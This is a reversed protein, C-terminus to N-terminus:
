KGQVAGVFREILDALEQRQKTSLSLSIKIGARGKEDFKLTALTKGSIAFERNTPPPVTGGGRGSTPAILAEFIQKPSLAGRAESIKSARQLLGASDKEIALNLAPVWRFQLDLPSEFAEVVQSPLRALALAKGLNSLDVGIAVALQRASPFLGKDLARSYMVGQEWPSLDARERNERDMEAFLARDDLNDVVALVPKGLELCAQHRRHGFVIEYLAADTPKAIPRVKIPQVNGGADAIESKLREFDPGSFNAQHRNAFSSRAISAPDILRAPKAGDWAQIEDVAERLKSELADVEVAREKLTQNERVLDARQGAAFEMMAGPATKPRKEEPPVITAPLLSSFDIKSAKDKLGM